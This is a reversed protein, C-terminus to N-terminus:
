MLRRETASQCLGEIVDDVDKSHTWHLLEKAKTPNARSIMIESPRLLAENSAVYDEWNLDFYAFSKQVFERLTISRGTAIVFDQPAPLQLMKWMAEVYEPAWGWDRAIALSGLELKEKSGRYIREAASVIKQTVFLRPRLPSEHNFLVASCAFLGYAERYNKVLYHATTKAVGYPSRPNFPTEECAARGEVDGFCDSSSASFFRISPDVFKIVELCNLTGRGISDMAEVPQEFSLRVSTQGALNYIEDPRVTQVVTLVSRFDTLDMSKIKVQDSIRLAELNRSDFSWSDRSTGFVEYGRELLYRALYSGDQGAIGLILARM